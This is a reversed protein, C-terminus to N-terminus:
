NNHTRYRYNYGYYHPKLAPEDASVNLSLKQTHHQPNPISTPPFTTGM